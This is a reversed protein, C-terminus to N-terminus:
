KPTAQRAIMYKVDKPDAGVKEMDQVPNRKGPVTKFVKHQVQQIHPPYLTLDKTFANNYTQKSHTNM